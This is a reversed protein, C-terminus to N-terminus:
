TVLRGLMWAIKEHPDLQRTTRDATTSHGAEDALPLLCRATKAVAEQDAVLQRIRDETVPVGTKGTLSTLDALQQSGGTGLVGLAHIRRAVDDAAAAPSRYQTETM